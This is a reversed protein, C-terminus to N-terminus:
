IRSLRDGHWVLEWTCQDVVILWLEFASPFYSHCLRTVFVCMVFSAAKFLFWAKYFLLATQLFSSVEGDLRVIRTNCSMQLRM